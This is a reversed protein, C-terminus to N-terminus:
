RVWFMTWFSLLVDCVRCILVGCNAVGLSTVLFVRFRCKLTVLFLEWRRWWFSELVVRLRRWFCSGVHRRRRPLTDPDTSSSHRRPNLFENSSTGAVDIVEMRIFGFGVSSIRNHNWPPGLLSFNVTIQLLKLLFPGNGAEEEKNEDKRCVTLQLYTWYFNGIVPNSGPDEPIPLLWEALQAVVM